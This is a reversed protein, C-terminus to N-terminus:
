SDMLSYDNEVMLRELFSFSAACTFKFFLLCKKQREGLSRELQGFPFHCCYTRVVMDGNVSLIVRNRIFVDLLLDVDAYGFRSNLNEIATVTDTRMWAQIASGILVAGHFGMHWGVMLLINLPVTIAEASPSVLDTLVSM